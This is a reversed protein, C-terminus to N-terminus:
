EDFEVTVYYGRDNQIIDKVIGKRSKLRETFRFLGSMAVAPEIMYNVNVPTTLRKVRIVPATQMISAPRNGGTPLKKALRGSDTSPPHVKIINPVMMTLPIWIIELAPKEWLFTVMTASDSATPIPKVEALSISMQLIKGCTMWSTKEAFQTATTNTIDM